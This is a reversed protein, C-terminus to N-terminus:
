WFERPLDDSFLTMSTLHKIVHVRGDGRILHNESLERWGRVKANEGTDSLDYGDLIVKQEEPSLPGGDSKETEFKQARDEIFLVATKWGSTEFHYRDYAVGSLDGHDHSTPKGLVAAVEEYSLNLIGGKAWASSRAMVAFLVLLALKGM